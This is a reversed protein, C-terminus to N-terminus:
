KGGKTEIEYEITTGECVCAAVIGPIRNSNPAACDADTIEIAEPRVNLTVTKGPPFSVTARAKLRYGEGTQVEILGHQASVISGSFLNSRGVFEAVFRHQPADYIERPTGKQIIKGSRMVAIQSSLALAEEQDRTVYLTTLGTDRQLRVLEIRMDQRLKADLNSLPEDLLLARPEIVLTRALAVRQQQGGSLQSPRRAETGKLNVLELTEKVKHELNVFASPWM